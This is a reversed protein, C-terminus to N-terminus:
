RPPNSRNAGSLALAKTEILGDRQIRQTQGETNETNRLRLESCLMQVRTVARRCCGDPDLVQSLFAWFTVLVTYTAHRSNAGGGAKYNRLWEPLVGGFLADLQTLCLRDAERAKRALRDRASVPPSGFLNRHFGAFFRTKNEM